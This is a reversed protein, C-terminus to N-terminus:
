RPSSVQAASPSHAVAHGTPISVPFSVFARRASPASRSRRPRDGAEGRPVEGPGPPAGRRAEGRRARDRRRQRHEAVRQRRPGRLAGRALVDHAAAVAGDDVERGADRAGHARRRAVGVAARARRRHQGDEVLRPVVDAERRLEDVSQQPRENSDFPNGRSASSFVRSSSRASRAAVSPPRSGTTQSVLGQTCRMFAVSSGRLERHVLGASNTWSRSM